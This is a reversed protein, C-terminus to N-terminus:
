FFKRQKKTIPYLVQITMRGIKNFSVEWDSSGEYVSIINQGSIRNVIKILDERNMHLFLPMNLSEIDFGLLIKEKDTNTDGM